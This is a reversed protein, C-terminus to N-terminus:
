FNVDFARIYFGTTPNFLTTYKYTNDYIRKM